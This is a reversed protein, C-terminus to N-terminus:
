LRKIFMWIGDGNTGQKIHIKVKTKEMKYDFTYDLMQSDEPNAVVKSFASYLTRGKACPAVDNFFNKGIVDEPSRGSILGEAKNYRLVKGTADMMIAGFPLTEAYKGDEALRNDIDDEGFKVATLGM